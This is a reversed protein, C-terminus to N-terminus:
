SIGSTVLASEQPASGTRNHPSRASCGGTFLLLFARQDRRPEFNMKWLLVFKPFGGSRRHDSIFFTLSNNAKFVNPLIRASNSFRGSSV